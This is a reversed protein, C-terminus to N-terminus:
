QHPLLLALHSVPPICSAVTLRVTTDVPKAFVNEAEPLAVSPNPVRSEQPPWKAEHTPTQLGSCGEGLM